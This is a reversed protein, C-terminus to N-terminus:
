DVIWVGITDGLSSRMILTAAIAGLVMCLWLVRAARSLTSWRSVLRVAFVCAALPFLVPGVLLMVITGAMGYFHYWGRSPDGSFFFATNASNEQASIVDYSYYHLGYSYFLAVIALYYGIMLVVARGCWILLRHSTQPITAVM